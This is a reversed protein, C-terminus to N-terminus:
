SINLKYLNEIFITINKRIAGENALRLRKIGFVSASFKATYQNSIIKNFIIKYTKKNTITYRVKCADTMSFGVLPKKLELLNATLKYRSSSLTAYLKANKLSEILAEKLSKNNVQSELIPSTSEGGQISTVSISNKLLPSHIPM